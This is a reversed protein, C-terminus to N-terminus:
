KGREDNYKQKFENILDLTNDVLSSIYTYLQQHKQPIYKEKLIKQNDVKELFALTDSVNNGIIADSILQKDIGIDDFLNSILVPAQKILASAIQDFEAKFTDDRANYSPGGYEKEFEIVETQLKELIDKLDIDIIIIEGYIEKFTKLVNLGLGEIFCIMEVALIEKVDESGLRSIKGNSMGVNDEIRKQTLCHKQIFRVEPSLNELEKLFDVQPRNPFIENISNNFEEEPLSKLLIATFIIKYFEVPTPKSTKKNSLDNLRPTKVGTLRSIKAKNAKLKDLYNGFLISM